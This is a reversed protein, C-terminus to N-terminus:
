AVEDDVPGRPTARMDITALVPQGLHGGDLLSKCARISHDYRMNQNVALVIGADECMEVIQKAEAYNCGLPKQALVGKIHAAQKVVERVVDIQIDPPVAIDAVEVSEDALLERYTDYVTAIDHREAAARATEPNRSSIAVPNFGSSRYAVLHCDAMIFGAGICGIRTDLRRPMRPLYDLTPPDQTPAM